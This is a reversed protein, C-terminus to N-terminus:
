ICISSYIERKVITWTVAVGGVEYVSKLAFAGFGREEANAVLDAGVHRAEVCDLIGPIANLVM